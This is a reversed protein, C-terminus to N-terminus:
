VGSQWNRRRITENTALEKQQEITPKMLNLEAIVKEISIAAMANTPDSQWLDSQIARHRTTLPCWSRALTHGHLQLSPCDAAVTVHSPGNSNGIFLDHNAILAALERFSTRPAKYTKRKCLKMVQDVEFEESGPGWIWTVEALWNDVLYDAIAAYNKLPWRRIERRHTPSIVVRMKKEQFSSNDQFFQETVQLDSQDWPLTLKHREAHSEDTGFFQDLVQLKEEVIYEPKSSREFTQTYAWSRSSRYSVRDKAGSCLSHIASRPNNMFDFVTDFRQRLSRLFRLESWFGEESYCIHEDLYPNQDLVLAGMKHSLFSIHANPDVRRIYNICPTTLLIDGLQRLQILLYRHQSSM